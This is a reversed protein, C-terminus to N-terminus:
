FKNNELIISELDKKLNIIRKRNSNFYPQELLMRAVDYRNKDTINDFKYNVKNTHTTKQSVMSDAKRLKLNKCVLAYEKYANAYSCVSSSNYAIANILSVDAANYNLNKIQNRGANAALEIWHQLKYVPMAFLVNTNNTKTPGYIVLDLQFIGAYEGPFDRVIREALEYAPTFSIIGRNLGKERLSHTKVIHSYVEDLWITREKLKGYANLLLTSNLGEEIETTRMARYLRINATEEKKGVNNNYYM